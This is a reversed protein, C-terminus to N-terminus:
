ADRRTVLVWKPHQGIARSGIKELKGDDRVRYTALRGSEHGAVFLFKDDPDIDLTHSQAETPILQNLTLRGTEPDVRFCAVTDYGRNIVYLFRGSHAIRLSSCSAYGDYGEAPLTSIHQFSALTGEDANVSCATVACGQENTFYAVNLQPHFVYHRPGGGREGAVKFPSNPLLVGNEADFKFQLITNSASPLIHNISLLPPWTDANVRSPSIHPLFAFRNSPDVAICHAGGGSDFWQTAEGIGGDEGIRHVAAKGSRYYASLLFRARQDVSLYTPGFQLPVCNIPTLGGNEWDIQFSYLRSEDRAGNGTGNRPHCGVYLFRKGPDIALAEPGRPVPIEHRIEITGTESDLTGALLKDEGAIALYLYSPKLM